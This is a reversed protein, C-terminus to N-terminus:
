PVLEDAGFERIYEKVGSNGIRLRSPEMDEWAPITDWVVGPIKDWIDTGTYQWMTTVLRVQQDDLGSPLIAIFFLLAILIFMLTFQLLNKHVLKFSLILGVQATVKKEAILPYVLSFAMNLYIKRTQTSNGIKENLIVSEKYSDIAGQYNGAQLYVAARKNSYYAAM